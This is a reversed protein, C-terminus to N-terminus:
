VEQDYFDFSGRNIISPTGEPAVFLVVRAPGTIVIPTGYTRTAQPAGGGGRVTDSYLLQPGTGGIPQSRISFLCGNSSNNNNGSIGTISTTFGTPTYHHAWLTKNDGVAITGLTGGGGGTSVFLTIIGANSSGSGVSIVELKEIFCITSSVTNVSSTGNLTVTETSPGAGTSDYYTIRVQRAGTGASTDNANASSMSRQANSSQENYTTARVAVNTTASTSVTGYAFGAVTASSSAGAVSLRGQSDVKLTRVLNGSDVGAVPLPADSLLQGEEAQGEVANGGAHGMWTVNVNTWSAGAGTVTWSVRFSDTVTDVIELVEVGAATHVVGTVTQGVVTVQDLPDVEEIKYQITPTTGTPADKLNIILYWETWGQWTLFQSSSSTVTAASHVTTRGGTPEAALPRSVTGITEGSSNRLNVHLGRQATIRVPAINDETAATTGTDDLQGGIAVGKNFAANMSHPLDDILQLSTTQTAQNTATANDQDSALAVPISASLTKQGVTPATSGLWAGVNADLRGGVLAGPLQPTDVTLSGGNDDVSVLGTSDDAITVRLATAEAGGGTTSLPAPVSVIDVDGINNNGAPLATGISVSGDVTLSGGNDTVPQATTGTPDVRVPDTNSGLVTTGNTTIGVKINGNSDVRLPNTELGSSDSGVIKTTGAAELDTLDAM